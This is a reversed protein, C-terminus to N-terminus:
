RSEMRPTQEPLCDWIVIIGLSRVEIDVSLCSIFKTGTRQTLIVPFLAELKGVNVSSISQALYDKRPTLTLVARHMIPYKADADDRAEVCVVERGTVVVM